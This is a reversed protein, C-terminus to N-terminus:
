QTTAFFINLYLGRDHNRHESDMSVYGDDQQKTCKAKAKNRKMKQVCSQLLRSLSFCFTPPLVHSNGRYCRNALFLLFKQTNSNPRYKRAMKCQSLYNAFPFSSFTPYYRETANLHMMDRLNCACTRIEINDSVQGSVNRGISDGISFRQPSHWTVLPFIPFILIYASVSLQIQALSYLINVIAIQSTLFGM